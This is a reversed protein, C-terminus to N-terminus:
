YDLFVAYALPCMATYMEWYRGGNGKEMVIMEGNGLNNLGEYQKVTWKYWRMLFVRVTLGHSVIVLNVNQNQEGPPQFRGKDIDAKLTERFGTNWSRYCWNECKVFGHEPLLPSPCLPCTLAQSETTFMQQQNETLFGISSDAMFLVSRKRSNWRRDM